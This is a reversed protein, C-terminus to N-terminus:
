INYKNEKFCGIGEVRGVVNMSFILSVILESCFGFGESEDFLLWFM